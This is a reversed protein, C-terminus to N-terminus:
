TDEPNSLTSIGYLIILTYITNQKHMTTGFFIAYDVLIGCKHRNEYAVKNVHGYIFVLYSLYTKNYM